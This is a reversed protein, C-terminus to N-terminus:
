EENSAKGRKFNPIFEYVDESPSCELAKYCEPHMRIDYVSGADFVTYSIQKDGKKIAQWCWDCYKVKRVIQEKM